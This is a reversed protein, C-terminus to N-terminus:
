DNQVAVPVGNYLKGEASLVYSESDTLGALVEVSNDVSRGLRLWRLLAQNNESVVYIGNLQGKKILAEKPILLSANNDQKPDSLKINAFMGAYLNELKEALEIKVLFQGGTYTSSTNIESIRGKVTSNISKIHVDVEDKLQVTSIHSEPIRAVLELDDDSEIELIPMGPNVIDGDNAFKQVVKGTIASKISAYSYQVSVENKAQKVAEVRSQAMELATTAQELEIKTASNNEFLRLYRDYNTQAQDLATIAEQINADLRGTQANLAEADISFLLQGKRVRDGVDVRLKDIFGMLRTSVMSREAAQITGSVQIFGETMESTPKSVVVNIREEEFPVPESEHPRCGFQIMSALWVVLLVQNRLENIKFQKRM